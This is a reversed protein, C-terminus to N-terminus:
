QPLMSKKIEQMAGMEDAWGDVRVIDVPDYNQFWTALLELAKPYKKDFEALSGAQMTQLKADAPIGIVKYDYEGNDFLNLMGIPIVEVVTGTPLTECLVMVDLADGDGGTKKDSLTSAIFGYNAPYPLYNIIREKGQRLDVEFINSDKNIEIKKSSGAPIEIICNVINEESFTPTNLIKM